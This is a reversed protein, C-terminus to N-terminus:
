DLFPLLPPIVANEIHKGILRLVLGADRLSGGPAGPDFTVGFAFHYDKDSEGDSSLPARAIIDGDKFPNLNVLDFQIPQRSTVAAIVGRVLHLTRHKDFNHLVYLDHLPKRDPRGCPQMREILKRAEPDICGIKKRLDSEKPAKDIFIPFESQKEAEPSLKSGTYAVALDYAFHDLASRYNFLCDGILVAWAVVPPDEVHVKWVREARYSDDEVMVSCADSRFFERAQGQFEQCHADARRLKEV